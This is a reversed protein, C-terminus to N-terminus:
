HSRPQRGFRDCPRLVRAQRKPYSNLDQGLAHASGHNWGGDSCMHLVLVGRWRVREASEQRRRAGSRTRARTDRHIDADGAAAGPFWPWGGFWRTFETFGSSFGSCCRRDEGAHDNLWALARKMSHRALQRRAVTGRGGDGLHKRLRPRPVGDATRASHTACFNSAQKSSPRDIAHPRPSCCM